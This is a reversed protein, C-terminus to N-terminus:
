LLNKHMAMLELINHNDDITTREDSFKTIYNKLSTLEEDNYDSENYNIEFLSITFLIASMESETNYNSFYEPTNPHGWYAEITSELLTPYNIM